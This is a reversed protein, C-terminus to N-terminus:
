GAEIVLVHEGSGGTEVRVEQGRATSIVTHQVQEGNLTVSQIEADAPLVHGILLSLGAADGVTTTYTGADVTTAATVTGDGVALDAVSLGPWSDPVQPIVELVGAPVDPRIGLFHHIVPWQTGYSSWAQMFMARDRFDVFPDYDPSPAIEPLAGPMELDLQDAVSHMYFLAQDDGLRGYNAEGVAMVSSPLTWVRLEGEGDPGGGRGTHFLGTDGTFDPGELTDLLAHAREDPPLAVEAPVANIWHRQQVLQDREQCYNIWDPQPDPEPSNCRSDAYLREEDMWWAADFAETMADAQDRAWAATDADGLDDAMGALAHLARWTYATVDLKEDGMGPREVMGDGEPWGDGDEDFLTTMSRMGDVVLDYMEELFARDGTWRWVLAVAAAFQPTEQFQGPHELNGFYVSGDTVLEHVIKGSEGNLARSVDRLLRLHDKLTDWQGSVLLPYATYAGDTGFYWPYDPFGAGIGTAEALHRVPDPYARGEDVDRVAMDTATIRLDALNLKGWDFAAQLQADPLEVRTRDFLETRGAVKEALLTEPDALAQSLATRAEGSDTHSGAAAIWITREEGGRLNVQWRLRAGAGDGEESHAAREDASLPGWFDDGTRGQVPRESADVMATWPREPETFTVIGTRRDYAAADPNNFEAASPETWSWPYAPLLDSRVDMELRFPRDRRDPNAFTLGVLTVPADDPAFEIRSVELGSVHPYDFRVYGAGTTFREAEPLWEGNVAFWYGDLLKVPHTWVGGMEGRIHWGMAPFGSDAAGIVYARDGAAVYRKAALNETSTRVPGAPPESAAVPAGLTLVSCAALAVFATRFRRM